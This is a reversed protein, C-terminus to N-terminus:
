GDFAPTAQEPSAWARAPTRQGTSLARAEQAAFFSSTGSDMSAAVACVKRQTSPHVPLRRLGRGVPQPLHEPAWSRREPTGLAKLDSCFCRHEGLEM